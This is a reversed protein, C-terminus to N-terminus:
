LSNKRLNEAKIYCSQLVKARPVHKCSFPLCYLSSFVMNTIKSNRKSQLLKLREQPCVAWRLQVPM